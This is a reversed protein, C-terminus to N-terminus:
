VMKWMELTRGGLKLIWIVHALEQGCYFDVCTNFVYDYMKRGNMKEVFNFDSMPMKQVWASVCGGKNSLPSQPDYLIV